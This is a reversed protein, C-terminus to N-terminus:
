RHARKYGNDSVREVHPKVDDLAAICSAPDSLFYVSIELVVAAKLLSVPGLDGPLLFCPCCLM